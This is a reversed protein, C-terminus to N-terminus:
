RDRLRRLIGLSRSKGGSAEERYSGDQVQSLPEYEVKGSAQRLAERAARAGRVWEYAVCGGGTVALGLLLAAALVAYVRWGPGPSGEGRGPPPGGHVEGSLPHTFTRGTDM